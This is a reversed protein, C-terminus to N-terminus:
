SRALGKDADLVQASWAGHAGFAASCSDGSEDDM